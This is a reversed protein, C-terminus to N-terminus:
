ISIGQFIEATERNNEFMLPAYACGLVLNKWNQSRPYCCIDDSIINRILRLISRLHVDDFAASDLGPDEELVDNGNPNYTQISKGHTSFRTSCAAVMLLDLGM